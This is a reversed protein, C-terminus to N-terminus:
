GGHFRNRQSWECMLGGAIGARRRIFHERKSLLKQIGSDEEVVLLREHEDLSLHLVDPVVRALAVEVAETSDDGNADAMAMRVDDGGRIALVFHQLMGRRDIEVRV